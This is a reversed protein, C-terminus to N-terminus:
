YNRGQSKRGQESIDALTVKQTVRTMGMETGRIRDSSCNAEKRQYLEIYCEKATDDNISSWKKVAGIRNPQFTSIGRSLKQLEV